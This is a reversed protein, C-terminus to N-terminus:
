STKRIHAFVTLKTQTSAELLDNAMQKKKGLVYGQASGHTTASLQKSLPKADILQSISIPHIVKSAQGNDIVSFIPLSSVPAVQTILSKTGALSQDRAVSKAQITVQYYNPKDIPESLSADLNADSLITKVAQPTGKFRHLTIAKKIIDRQQEITTAVAWNPEDNLSFNQVLWALYGSPCVETLMPMLPQGNLSICQDFANVLATLNTNSAISPPLNTLAM